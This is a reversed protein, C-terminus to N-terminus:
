GSSKDHKGNRKASSGSSSNGSLSTVGTLTTGTSRVSRYSNTSNNRFLGASSLSSTTALSNSNCSRLSPAVGAAQHPNHAGGHAPGGGGGSGVSDTLSESLSSATATKSRCFFLILSISKLNPDM